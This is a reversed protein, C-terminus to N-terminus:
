VPDGSWKFLPNPFRVLAAWGCGIHTWHRISATSGGYEQGNNDDKVRPNKATSLLSSLGVRAIKILICIYVGVCFISKWRIHYLMTILQDTMKFTYKQFLFDRRDKLIEDCCARPNWVFINCVIFAFIESAPSMMISDEWMEDANGESCRSTLLHDVINARTEFFAEDRSLQLGKKGGAAGFLSCCVLEICSLTIFQM